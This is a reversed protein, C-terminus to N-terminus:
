MGEVQPAGKGTSRGREAGAKLLNMKGSASETRNELHGLLDDDVLVPMSNAKQSAWFEGAPRHM